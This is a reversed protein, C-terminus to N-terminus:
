IQNGPVAGPVYVISHPLKVSLLSWVARSSLMVWEM